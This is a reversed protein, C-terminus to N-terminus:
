ITHNLPKGYRIIQVVTTGPVLVPVTTQLVYGAHYRVTIRIFIIKSFLTQCVCVCVCVCTVSNSKIKSKKIPYILPYDSITPSLYSGLITSGTSVVLM